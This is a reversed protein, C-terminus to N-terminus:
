RRLIAEKLCSGSYVDDIPIASLSGLLKWYRWDEGCNDFYRREIISCMLAAGKFTCQDAGASLSSGDKSDYKCVLENSAQSLATFSAARKM